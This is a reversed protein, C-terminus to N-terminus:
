RLLLFAVLVFLLWYPFWLVAYLSVALAAKWDHPKQEALRPMFGMYLVVSLIAAWFFGKSIWEVPVRLLIAARYPQFIMFTMVFLLFGYLCSFLNLKLLSKRHM